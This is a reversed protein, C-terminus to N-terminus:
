SRHAHLLAILKHFNYQKSKRVYKKRRKQYHVNRLTSYHRAHCIHMFHPFCVIFGLEVSLYFRAPTYSLFLIFTELNVDSDGPHGAISVQLDRHFPVYRSCGAIPELDSYYYPLFQLQLCRCVWSSYAVQLRTRKYESHKSDSVTIGTNRNTWIRVQMNIINDSCTNYFLKHWSYITIYYCLFIYLWRQVLGTHSVVVKDIVSFNVLWTLVCCFCVVPWCPDSRTPPGTSWSVRACTDVIIVSDKKRFWRQTYQAAPNSATLLFLILINQFCSLKEV